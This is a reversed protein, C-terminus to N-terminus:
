TQTSKLAEQTPDFKLIPLQEARFIEESWIGVEELWLGFSYVLLVAFIFPITVSSLGFILLLQPQPSKMQRM